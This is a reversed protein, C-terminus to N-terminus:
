FVNTSRVFEPTPNWMAQTYPREPNAPTAANELQFILMFDARHPRLRLTHPLVLGPLPRPEKRQNQIQFPPVTTSGISIHWDRQPQPIQLPRHSPHFVQNQNELSEVAGANGAAEPTAIPVPTAGAITNQLPALTEGQRREDAACVRHRENGAVEAGNSVLQSGAEPIERSGAAIATKRLADPLGREQVDAQAQGSRGSEGDRLRLASPLKSVPQAPRRLVGRYSRRTRWRHLRLGDIQPDGGREQGGGACQGSQPLSPKQHVGGTTEGADGGGPPQHIGFRQRPPVGAGCVSVPEANSGASAASLSRQNQQCVGGGAM